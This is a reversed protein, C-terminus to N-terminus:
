PGLPAASMRPTFGVVNIERSLAGPRRDRYQRVFRVFTHGLLSATGGAVGGGAAHGVVGVIRRYTCDPGTCDAFSVVALGFL